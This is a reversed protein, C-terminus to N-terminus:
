NWHDDQGRAKPAMRYQYVAFPKVNIPQRRRWPTGSSNALGRRASGAGGPGKRALFQIDLCM